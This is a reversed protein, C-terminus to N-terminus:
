QSSYLIFNRITKHKPSLQQKDTLTKNEDDKKLEENGM